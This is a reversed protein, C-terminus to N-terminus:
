FTGVAKKLAHAAEEVKPGYVIQINNENIRVIGMSGTQKLAAENVISTDKLVLRLRSICNDIEKINDKGGIAALIAEGLESPEVTTTDEMGSDIEVDRGPTKLDKKIIVYKFVFYYVFFYIIGLLVCFYWKTYLGQLIGFIFLDVFGGGANGVGVQLLTMIFFSLGAMCAHFLWLIPSIFIFSFEIPETIGTAFSTLAAALLMGKVKPREKLYATKYMAFCAGPLGFMMFPHTGQTLFRTAQHFVDLDMNSSALEAQFISLAGSVVNGDVVATGGVPTFRILQNLVHHLGTPILLRETFGYIFTGFAGAQSILSGLGDIIVSFFPWIYYTVIAVFPITVIIMIPVFRNGAFFSFAIPLKQTHFRNHIFATWLGCLIGGFISMRLTFIGLQTDYTSNIQYAELLDHGNATLYDISTTDATIGNCGLMYNIMVHFLVFCIVVSFGAIEKDEKVMGTAVSIAFLVPLLSFMMSVLASVAGVILQVGQANAFSEGVINANTLISVIGLLLGSAVIISLPGMLSKGLKQVFTRM